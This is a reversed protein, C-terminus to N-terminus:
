LCKIERGQETYMKMTANEHCRTEELNDMEQPCPGLKARATGRLCVACSFHGTIHEGNINQLLTIKM